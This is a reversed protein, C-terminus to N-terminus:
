RSIAGDPAMKSSLKEILDAASRACVKMRPDHPFSYWNPSENYNGEPTREAKLVYSRRCYMRIPNGSSETQTEFRDDFGVWISDTVAPPVLLVMRHLVESNFSFEAERNRIAEDFRKDAIAAKGIALDGAIRGAKATEEDAIRKTKAAQEDAGRKAKAAEEDAIRKAKAAEEDALTKAKAATEVAIRSVEAARQETLLAQVVCILATM